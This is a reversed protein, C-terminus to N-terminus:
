MVGLFASVLRAVTISTLTLRNESTNKHLATRSYLLRRYNVPIVASRYNVGRTLPSMIMEIPAECSKGIEARSSLCGEGWGAKVYFPEFSMASVCPHAKSYFDDSKM